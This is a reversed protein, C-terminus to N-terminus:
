KVYSNTQKGDNYVRLSRAAGKNTKPRREQVYADDTASFTSQGRAQSAASLCLILVMGRLIAVSSASRM